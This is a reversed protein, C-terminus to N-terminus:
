FKNSRTMENMVSSHFLSRRDDITFEHLTNPNNKMEIHGIIRGQCHLKASTSNRYERRELSRCKYRILICNRRLPDRTSRLFALDYAPVRSSLLRRDSKLGTKCRFSAPGRNHVRILM